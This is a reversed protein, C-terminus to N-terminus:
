FSNITEPFYTYKHEEKAILIEYDSVAEPFHRRINNLTDHVEETNKVCLYIITNYKGICHVAWLTNKDVQLLEQLTDKKEKHLDTFRLLLAYISYSLGTYNIIPVFNTIIGNDKMKRVRHTVADASLGVSNAISYYPKIADNALINLIAMDKKDHPAVGVNRKKQIESKSSVFSQPFVLNLHPAIIILVEYNQVLPYCDNLIIDLRTNFEYVNKAIISLEVDFKGSFAIVTKVFNHGQLKQITDAEKEKSPLKLQLFLHYTDYGFKTTDIVVRSGQLIGKVALNKIRYRIADRSLGVKKAIQTYSTRANEALLSLIKTDKKDLTVKQTQSTDQLYKMSRM